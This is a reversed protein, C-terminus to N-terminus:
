RGTLPPVHRLKAQQLGANMIKEEVNSQGIGGPDFARHEVTRNRKEANQQCVIEHTAVTQGQGLHCAAHDAEQAHQRDVEVWLQQIETEREHPVARDQERGKQHSGPHNVAFM